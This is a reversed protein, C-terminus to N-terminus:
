AWLPRFEAVVSLYVGRKFPVILGPLEEPEVWRWDRFEPHPGDIRIDADTGTFRFALWKQSQGLHRGHWRRSAVPPPLDYSRWCRSEALLDVRDTGIEELLERRGAEVATEGRDIGGQPMQWAPETMDRRQGVFARNEPNLLFLGVCPRYGSRPLDTEVCDPTM